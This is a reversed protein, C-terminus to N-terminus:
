APSALANCSIPSQSTWAPAAPVTRVARQHQIMNGSPQAGKVTGASFIESAADYCGERRGLATGRSLRAFVMDRVFDGLFDRTAMLRRAANATAGARKASVGLFGGAPFFSSLFSSFGLLASGGIVFSGMLSTGSPIFHPM